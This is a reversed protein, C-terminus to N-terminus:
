QIEALKANVRTQVDLFYLNEADNLDMSEIDDMKKTMETYKKMYKAYDALMSVTDDSNDASDDIPEFIQESLLKSYTYVAWETFIRKFETKNVSYQPVRGLIKAIKVGKKVQANGYSELM